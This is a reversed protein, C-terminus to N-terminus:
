GDLDGYDCMDVWVDFNVSLKEPLYCVILDLMKTRSREHSRVKLEQRRGLRQMDVEDQEGHHLNEQDGSSPSTEGKLTRQHEFAHGKDSDM